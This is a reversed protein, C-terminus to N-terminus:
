MTSAGRESKKSFLTEELVVVRMESNIREPIIRKIGWFLYKQLIGPEDRFISCSYNVAPVTVIDIVLFPTILGNSCESSGSIMALSHSFFRM